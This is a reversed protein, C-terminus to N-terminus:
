GPQIIYILNYLCFIVVLNIFILNCLIFYLWVSNVKNYLTIYKLFLYHINNGYPLKKIINFELKSDLLLRASIFLFLMVTFYLMLCVLTLNLSIINLIEERHPFDLLDGAPGQELPSSAPWSGGENFSPQPATSSTSDLAGASGAEGEQPSPPLPSNLNNVANENNVKDIAEQGESITVNLEFIESTNGVAPSPTSSTIHSPTSPGVESNSDAVVSLANKTTTPLDLDNFKNSLSESVWDKIHGQKLNNIETQLDVKINVTINKDINPTMNNLISHVAHYSTAIGTGSGAVIGLRPLLSLKSGKLFAAAVGSGVIFASGRFISTLVTSADKATMKIDAVAFTVTVKDSEDGLYIPNNIYLIYLISFLIPVAIIYYNNFLYSLKTQLSSDTLGKLM